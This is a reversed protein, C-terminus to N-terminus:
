SRIVIIMSNYGIINNRNYQYNIFLNDPELSHKFLIQFIILLVIAVTVDSFLILSHKSSTNNVRRTKGQNYYKIEQMSIAPTLTFGLLM